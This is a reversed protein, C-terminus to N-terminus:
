ATDLLRYSRGDLFAGASSAAAPPGMLVYTRIEMWGDLLLQRTDIRPVECGRYNSEHDTTFLSEKSCM